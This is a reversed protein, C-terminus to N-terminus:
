CKNTRRHQSQNGKARGVERSTQSVKLPRGTDVTTAVWRVRQRKTQRNMQRDTHRHTHANKDTHTM